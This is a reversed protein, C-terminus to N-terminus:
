GGFDQKVPQSPNGNGGGSASGSQSYIKRIEEEIARRELSGAPYELVLEKLSKLQTNGAGESSKDPANGGTNLKKLVARVEEIEKDIPELVGEKFIYNKGDIAMPVHEEFGQPSFSSHKLWEYLNFLIKLNETDENTLEKTRKLDIFYQNRKLNDAVETGLKGNYDKLWDGVTKILALPTITERNELLARKLTERCRDREETIEINLLKNKVKDTVDYGEKALNYHKTFNNKLLASISAYDLLPLAIFKLNILAKSYYNFFQGNQIALNKHKLLAKELLNGAKLATPADDAEIIKKFLNKTSEFFDKDLLATPTNSNNLNNIPM